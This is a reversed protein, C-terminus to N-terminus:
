AKVIKGSKICKVCVSARQVVGKFLIKIRQLNPRFTRLTNGVIKAGAGGKRKIMGRRKYKRGSIPAKGCILCARPM